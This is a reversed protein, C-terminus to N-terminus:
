DEEHAAGGCLFSTTKLSMSEILHSGKSILPDRLSLPWMSSSRLLGPKVMGTFDAFGLPAGDGCDSSRCGLHLWWPFLTASTRPSGNMETPGVGAFDALIAQPM